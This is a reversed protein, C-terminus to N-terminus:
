ALLGSFPLFRVLDGEAVGDLSEDLEILGQAAVMSTLIGSGESPFRQAVLTGTADVETWGRLWERRGARKKFSFAAPLAVAPITHASRGQLACILPRAFMMFCVMSAVPNGPLGMFPTEGVQGFALPRGPRIAVRWFNLSGLTEVAGKVHDEDGTSVGGSTLLLDYHPAAEALADIIASRNDPLIGLDGAEGGLGQVLSMVTFRNSDFICGAPADGGPDRIENGTSFVGVRVRRHVLLDARGVSAALGIEQPRLLAGRTLVVDGHRFDEGEKRVNAGPKKVAPLIIADGDVRCPEQPIVTDCGVPVPAGTFIRGATGPPLIEGPVAGAPIRLSVPLRTETTASIDAYRVAYGDVASNDHPPNARDSQVAEALVRGLAQRLPARETEAVPQVAACLREVADETHLMDASVAFADATKTADTTM